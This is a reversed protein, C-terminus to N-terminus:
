RSAVVGIASLVIICFLAGTGTGAISFVLGTVSIGKSVHRNKIRFSNYIICIISVITCLIMSVLVFIAFGQTMDKSVKSITLLFIEVAFSIIALIM